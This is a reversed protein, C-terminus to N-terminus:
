WHRRKAAAATRVDAKANLQRIAPRSLYLTPWVHSSLVRLDVLYKNPQM